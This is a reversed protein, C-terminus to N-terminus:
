ASLFVAVRIGRVSSEFGNQGIEGRVSAREEGGDAAGRWAREEGGRRPCARRGGGRAV